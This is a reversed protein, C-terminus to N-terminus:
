CGDSLWCVEEREAFARFGAADRHEPSPVFYSARDESAAYTQWVLAYAAHSGLALPLLTGLFWNEAALKDKVILARPTTLGYYKLVQARQRPDLTALAAAMEKETAVTYPSAERVPLRFTGAETLAFLKGHTRAVSSAARVWLEAQKKARADVDRVSSFYVDIGVVDVVDDGPYDRAIEAERESVYRHADADSQIKLVSEKLREKAGRHAERRLDRALAQPDVYRREQLSLGQREAKTGRASPSYVFLLEAMGPEKRLGEVFRRFLRKYADVDNCGYASGWWFWNGNQEHFPRVILPRDALGQARLVEAIHKIHADLWVAGRLGAYPGRPIEQDNAVLCLCDDGTGEEIYFSLNGASSAMKVGDVEAVADVARPACSSTHWDLTVLGGKELHARMAAGVVDARKWQPPDFALMDLGIGLVAPDDGVIAAADSVFRGKRPGREFWVNTSVRRGNESMGWLTANEQGFMFKGADSVAKLQARTSDRPSAACALLILAFISV